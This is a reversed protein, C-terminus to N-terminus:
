EAGRRGAGSRPPVARGRLPEAGAGRVPSASRGCEAAACAPPSIRPPPLGAPHRLPSRLRRRFECGPRCGPTKRRSRAAAGAEGGHECGLCAPQAAPPPKEATPRVSPPAPHEGAAGPEAWTLERSGAVDEGGFGGTAQLRAARTPLARWASMPPARILRSPFAHRQNPFASAPTRWRAAKFRGVWRGECFLLDFLATRSQRKRPTNEGRERSLSTKEGRGRERVERFAPTIIGRGAQSRRLINFHADTGALRSM